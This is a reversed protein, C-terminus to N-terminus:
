VTIDWRGPDDYYQKESKISIHVHKDHPNSGNYPRWTWPAAGDIASSNAIRRNWIVYKVRGDRRSQLSQALKGADCGTGPSHTIDIATVVGAGKDEIWPNHDSSRTRHSADGITGDSAKNRNPAQANVEARLADIAKATRWAQTPSPVYSGEERALMRVAEDDDGINPTREPEMGGRASPMASQMAAAQMGDGVGIAIRLTLPIPVQLVQGEPAAGTAMAGASMTGSAAANDPPRQLMPEADQTETMGADVSRWAHDWRDTVGVKGDFRVGADLVRMDRALEYSPVAYNAKLYEGAFHLGIVRGSDADIIASGSNGGLTSSDHVMADVENEFSRVNSRRGVKGPQLRKVNFVGGFIRDQLAMDNRPDRAPYGVAMMTHDVLDEPAQVSLTLPRYRGSLGAVKLLAMDWYPHIMLVREITFFSAPDPQGDVECKFDVAADGPRYLLRRTGLGETFLRAVHRNTMMLGDGVLFGTGGYPITHMNPLEIRGISGLMPNIRERVVSTDLGTWVGGIQDYTEARVFVAPRDRALVIAEVGLMEEFSLEGERHEQLKRLGSNADAVGFGATAGFAPGSAPLGSAGVAAGKLSATAAEQGDAAVSLAELDHDPAVQQLMSRLRSIREMQQM